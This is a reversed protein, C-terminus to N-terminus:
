PLPLLPAVKTCGQLTPVSAGNGCQITACYGLSPISCAERCSSNVRRPDDMWTWGFTLSRGCKRTSASMRDYYCRLAKFLVTRRRHIPSTHNQFPVFPGGRFIKGAQASDRQVTPAPPQQPTPAYQPSSVAGEPTRGIKSTVTSCDRVENLCRIRRTSLHLHRVDLM